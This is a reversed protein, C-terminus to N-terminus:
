KNIEPKTIVETYIYKAVEAAQRIMKRQRDSFLVEVEKTKGKEDKEKKNPENYKQFEESFVLSSVNNWGVSRAISEQQTMSSSSQNKTTNNNSMTNFNQNNDEREIKAFTDSGKKYSYRVTDGQNYSEITKKSKALFEPKEGNNLHLKYKLFTQQGNSWEGQEEVFQITSVKINTSEM